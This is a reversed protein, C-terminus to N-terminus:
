HGDKYYVYGIIIVNTFILLWLFWIYAMAVSSVKTFALMGITLLLCVLAIADAACYSKSLFLGVVSALAILVFFIVVPLHWSLEFGLSTSYDGSVMSTVFLSTITIILNLSNVLLALKRM